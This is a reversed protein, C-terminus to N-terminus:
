NQTLGYMLACHSDFHSDSQMRWTSPLPRALGNQDPSLRMRQQYARFNALGLLVSLALSASSLRPTPCILKCTSKMLGRILSDM